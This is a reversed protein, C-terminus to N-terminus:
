VGGRVGEGGGVREFLEIPRRKCSQFIICSNHKSKTQQSVLSVDLVFVHPTWALLEAQVRADSQSMNKTDRWAAKRCGVTKQAIPECDCFHDARLRAM